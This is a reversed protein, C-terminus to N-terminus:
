LFLYLNLFIFVALNILFSFPKFTIKVERGDNVACIGGVISALGISYGLVYLGWLIWAFVIM